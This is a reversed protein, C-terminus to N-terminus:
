MCSSTWLDLVIDIHRNRGIVLFNTKTVNLPLKNVKFWELLNQLDSNVEESLSLNSQKLTYATSDDAFLM